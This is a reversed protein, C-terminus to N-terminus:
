FEHNIQEKVYTLDDSSIMQRWSTDKLQDPHYGLIKEVAKSVYLLKGKENWVGIIHNSQHEIWNLIFDPLMALESIDKLQKNRNLTITAQESGKNEICNSMSEVGKEMM